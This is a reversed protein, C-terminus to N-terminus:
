GAVAANGHPVEDGALTLSQGEFEEGAVSGVEVGDLMDRAIELRV